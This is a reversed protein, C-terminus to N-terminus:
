QFRKKPNRRLKSANAARFSEIIKGYDNRSVFKWAEAYEPYDCAKSRAINDALLEPKHMHDLYISKLIAHIIIHRNKPYPEEVKNDKFLCHILEHAVVEIFEDPTYGSKVVIPFSFSRPNGSVVHVDFANRAFILGTTEFLGNFIAAQHIKWAEKFISTKIRVQEKSPERWNKFQPQAKIWGVFIPDLFRNYEINITPHDM